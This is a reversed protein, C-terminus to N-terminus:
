KIEPIALETEGPILMEIVTYYGRRSRINFSFGNGFCLKMRRYINHLAHVTGGEKELEDLIGTLEKDQIGLGNDVFRLRMPEGSKEGCSAELLIVCNSRTSGAFGHTISNEALPQLVMSPILRQAAAASIRTKLTYTGGSRINMVKTYNSLHEIEMSLGVMPKAYISYRFMWSMSSIMTELQGNKSSRAMARMCELTNFLFHPSIQARYSMFEAQAQATVTAFLKENAEQELQVARNIRNLMFKISHSILNLEKLRPERLLFQRSYDLANLDEALRSIGENMSHILVMLIVTILFVVVSIIILGQNMRSFIRTIVEKEPVYYICDWFFGAGGTSNRGLTEPLSVKITLYNKGNIRVRSQGPAAASIAAQEEPPV